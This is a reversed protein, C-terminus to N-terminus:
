RLLDLEEVCYINYGDIWNVWRYGAEEFQNVPISNDYVLYQYKGEIALNKLKLIDLSESNITEYIEKALGERGIGRLMNRGYPMRIVGDYQKLQYLFINQVIVGRREVNYAVADNEIMHSIEIVDQEIKLRNDPVEFQDDYLCDGQGVIILVLCGTIIKKYLENKTNQTIKVFSYAMLITSPLLWFMRWYTMYEICYVAIIHATIPCWYIFSFLGLQGLFFKRNVKDKEVLFLLVIALLYLLLYKGDAFYLNYNNWCNIITDLMEDGLFWM